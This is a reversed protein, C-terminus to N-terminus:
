PTCSRASRSTRYVRAEQRAMGRLGPFRGLLDTWEAASLSERPGLLPEVVKAVLTRVRAEWAPNLGQQLPLPKQAEIRALPFHEIEDATARIVSTGVAAYETEARNLAQIARPDYGAIRTRGFYDDVKARVAWVAACADATQTGLPALEPATGADLWAVYADVQAFFSELTAASVGPDGSRDLVPSAHAVAEELALKADADRASLPTVIGDGNFPQKSFALAAGAM